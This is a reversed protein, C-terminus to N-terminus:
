QNLRLLKVANSWCIQRMLEPSTSATLITLTDRAICTGSKADGGRGDTCPCDSGFMLKARHRKLFLTTFEKNRSLANSDVM